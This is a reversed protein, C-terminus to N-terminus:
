PVYYYRRPAVYVVPGPSGYGYACPAYNGSPASAVSCGTVTSLLGLGLLILLLRTHV